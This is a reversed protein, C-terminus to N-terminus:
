CGLEARAKNWRATRDSLGNLGGNIRRTLTNFDGSDAYTNLNRSKWFYATAVFGGSPMSVQEPHAEFDRSLSTGASRYNSRGTLQIPGRGKYRRGDGPQTNGLDTRGEYAAGSAIEEFYLLGVSEHAVQAVFAAVRKCTNVQSYDLAALFYPWL